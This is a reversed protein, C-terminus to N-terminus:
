VLVRAVTDASLQEAVLPIDHCAILTREGHFRFFALAARSQGPAIRPCDVGDSKVEPRGCHEMLLSCDAESGDCDHSSALAQSKSVVLGISPSKSAGSRRQHAECLCPLSPHGGPCSFAWLLYQSPRQTTVSALFGTRELSRCDLAQDSVSTRTTM